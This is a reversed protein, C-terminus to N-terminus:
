DMLPVLRYEVHRNYPNGTAIRYLAKEGTYDKRTVAVIQGPRLRALNEETTDSTHIIAILGDYVYGDGYEMPAVQTSFYRGTALYTYAKFQVGTEVYDEKGKVSTTNYGGRTQTVKPQELLYIIDPTHYRGRYPKGVKRRGGWSGTM